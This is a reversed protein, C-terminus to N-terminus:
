RLNSDEPHLLCIDWNPMCQRGARNAKEWEAWKTRMAKREQHDIAHDTWAATRDDTLLPGLWRFVVIILWVQRRGSADPSLSERAQFMFQTKCGRTFCTGKCKAGAQREGYDKKAENICTPGKVGPPLRQTNICARCFRSLIYPDGLKLHPCLRFDLAQLAGVVDKVQFVEKYVGSGASTRSNYLPSPSQLLGIKSILLSESKPNELDMASTGKEPRDAVSRNRIANRCRSCPELTEVRFPSDVGAKITRVTKSYGMQRHPCLWVQKCDRSRSEIKIESSPFSSRTHLLQCKGCVLKDLETPDQDRETMCLFDFLEQGTLVFSPTTYLHFFRSCTHRLAVESSLTLYPQLIMLMETPLSLFGSDVNNFVTRESSRTAVSPAYHHPAREIIATEPTFALKSVLHEDSPTLSLSTSKWPHVAEQGNEVEDTPNPVSKTRSLKRRMRDFVPM